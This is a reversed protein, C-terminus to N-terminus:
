VLAISHRRCGGETCFRGIAVNPCGRGRQRTATECNVGLTGCRFELCIACRGLSLCRLAKPRYWVPARPSVTHKCKEADVTNKQIECYALELPSTVALGSQFRALVLETSYFLRSFTRESAGQLLDYMQRCIGHMTSRSSTRM